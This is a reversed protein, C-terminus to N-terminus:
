PAIPNIQWQDYMEIYYLDFLQGSLTVVRFHKGEPDRWEAVIQDIELREGQWTLAVPREPYRFGAYCEVLESGM